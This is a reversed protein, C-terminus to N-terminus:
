LLRWPRPRPLPNCGIRGRALDRFDDYFQWKIPMLGYLVWIYLHQFRHMWYRPQYPSFRLVPGPEIDDDAGNINTYTHHVITHQWHWIYSSGGLLDLMWAMGYNVVKLNSFAGHSGDHMLNFGIGAMALGTSIALPLAQWWASAWFVLLAYSGALW